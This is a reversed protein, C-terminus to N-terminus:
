ARPQDPRRKYAHGHECEQWPVPCPIRAVEYGPVGSDTTLNGTGDKGTGQWAAKAKRIM